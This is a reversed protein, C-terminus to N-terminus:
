ALGGALASPLWVDVTTGRGPASRVELTGGAAEARERMVTLGIHHPGRAAVDELRFGCGDDRVLVRVGDGDDALEVILRSAGAHKRVNAVAEQGIRYLVARQEPTLTRRTRDDVDWRLGVIDSTQLHRRLAAALGERDLEPPRLEFMLTRLRHIASRVTEELRELSELSPHEELEGEIERRLAELRLGVAVMVQVSDDHIDEAIRGREEEQAAVIRGLAQRLQAEFRRLATVDRTVGIVSEVAGDDGLEPVVRSEYDAVGDPGPYAFEFTLPEGTDFVRSLAEDWRAVLPEPMGLERNTRGLYAEASLGTAAEVAPNVYRHRLARDFRAVLDPSHTALTRFERERDAAAHEAQQREAMEGLLHAATQAFDVQEPTWTHARRSYVGLAGFASRRGGVVVTLTSAIGQERAFDTDAAPDGDLDTLVQPTATVVARGAVSDPGLPLRARHVPDGHLGAGGCLVLEGAEPRAQWVGVADAELAAAILAAAEPCAAAVDEAELVLEGLAALAAQEAARRQLAGTAEIRDTVDRAVGEVAVLEGRADRVGVVRHETWRLNGEADRLRLLAADEPLDGDLARLLDDIDDPHVSRVILRPDALHAAAPHGTLAEISPSLYDFGRDPQLRYRYVLDRANDLLRRFRAEREVEAAASERRALWLALTDAIARVLSREEPLFRPAEGGYGVEVRGRRRGDVAVWSRLLKRGSDFAGREARAEGLVVRVAVDEPRALAPVLATAIEDVLAEPDDLRQAARNVAVLCSLEKVREALADRLGVAETVDRANIVAGGVAPDDACGTAVAEFVRLGRPTEIRLTLPDHVAGVALAAALEQRAAERDDPHVATFVDQGLAEGPGCGLAQEAAPNADLIRGGPDLLLIVDSSHRVLARFRRESGALREAARREDRLDTLVGIIGVLRGDADRLPSDSVLVPVRDGDRTRMEMEGSWTEGVEFRAFIAAAREPPCGDVLVERALRGVLEDIPWGFLQEAAPNVATIRGELDTVVIAEGTVALIQAEFSREHEALDDVAKASM